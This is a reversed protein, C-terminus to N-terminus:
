QAPNSLPAQDPASSTVPPPVPRKKARIYAILQTVEDESVSDSFSPMRQGGNMIQEHIQAPKWTKRVIDLSPARHTGQAAAGHCYSCGKDRFLIAGIKADGKDAAAAAPQPIALLSLIAALAIQVDKLRRWYSSLRWIPSINM